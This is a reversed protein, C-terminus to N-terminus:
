STVHRGTNRANLVLEILRVFLQTGSKSEVDWTFM